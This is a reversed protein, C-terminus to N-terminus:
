YLNIKNKIFREIIHLLDIKHLNDILYLYKNGYPIYVSMYNCFLKTNNKAYDIYSYFFALEINSIKTPYKNRLKNLIEFDHTALTHYYGSEILKQSNLYYLESVLTWNKIDGYYYGKVLRIHGGFILITDVKTNITSHYTALTIGINNYGMSLLNKYSNFENDLDDPLVTSIWVFIDRKAAYNVISKLLKQQNEETKALQRIKISIKSKKYICKDKDEKDEKDDILDIM